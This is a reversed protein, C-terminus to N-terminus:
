IKIYEKCERRELWEIMSSSFIEYGAYARLLSDNGPITEIQFGLKKYISVAAPNMTHVNCTIRDFTENRLLRVAKIILDWVLKGSRFEKKIQISPIYINKPNKQHRGYELYGIIKGNDGFAIIITDNNEFNKKRMSEDFPINAATLIPEMNRKDFEIISKYLATKIDKTQYTEIRYL